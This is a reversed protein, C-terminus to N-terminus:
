EDVEGVKAFKRNKSDNDIRQNLQLILLSKREREQVIEDRYGRLTSPLLAYIVATSTVLAGWVFSGMVTVFFIFFTTQDGKYDCPAYKQSTDDFFSGVGIASLALGFLTTVILIPWARSAFCSVLGFVMIPVFVSMAAGVGTAVEFPWSYDPGCGTSARFENWYANAGAFCAGVAFLGLTLLRLYKMADATKAGESVDGMRGM